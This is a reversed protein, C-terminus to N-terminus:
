EDLGMYAQKIGNRWVMEYEKEGTNEDTGEGQVVFKERQYFSVARENKQYVNLRLQQKVGKVFDLLRKGIGGSQMGSRVFIGAIYDGDLGVFGQIEKGDEFVYVEAQGLMERVAEFNDRWYRAPIFDHAKVNTDLWIEAVADIDKKQFERVM